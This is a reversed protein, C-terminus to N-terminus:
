ENDALKLYISYKTNYFVKMAENYKEEAEQFAIIWDEIYFNSNDKFQVTFGLSKLFAKITRKTVKALKTEEEWLSQWEDFKEEDAALNNIRCVEEETKEAARYEAILERIAEFKETIAKMTVQNKNNSVINTQRDNKKSAM